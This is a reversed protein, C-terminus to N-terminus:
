RGMLRSAFQQLPMESVALRPLAFMEPVGEDLFSEETTCAWQLTTQAVDQCVQPDFNGYPYAFGEIVQDTLLRCQDQSERIEDRSDDRSLDTLARHSVTHAGITVLSGSSIQRIQEASMPVGLPDSPAKLRSRLAQLVEDRQVTAASQLASWVEVYCRQRATRPQDWGRWDRDADATEWLGWALHLDQGACVQHHDFPDAARLILGALEDWWYPTQQGVFGTAIFVTAPVQFRELIPKAHALNDLYGDDFTLAVANAPLTGAALRQVLDQMPMPARHQRLYAVQEEFREPAVALSWPDSELSAVRHYMLIAPRPRPRRLKARIRRALRRLPM